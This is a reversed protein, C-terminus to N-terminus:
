YIKCFFSNLITALTTVFQCCSGLYLSWKTGENLHNKERTGCTSYVSNITATIAKIKNSHDWVLLFLSSYFFSERFFMVNLPTIRESLFKRHHFPFYIPYGSTDSLQVCWPQKETIQSHRLHHKKHNELVYSRLRSPKFGFKLHLKLLYNARIQCSFSATTWFLIKTLFISFTM